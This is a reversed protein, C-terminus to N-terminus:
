ESLCVKMTMEFPPLMYRKEASFAIYTKMANTELFSKYAAGCRQESLVVQKKGTALATYKTRDTDTM